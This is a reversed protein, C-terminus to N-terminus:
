YEGLNSNYLVSFIVNKGIAIASTSNIKVIGTTTITVFGVSECNAGTGFFCMARIDMNPYFKSNSIQGIKLDVNASLAASLTGRFEALCFDAKKTVVGHSLYAINESTINSIKGNPVNTINYIKNGSMSMRIDKAAVNSFTGIFSGDSKQLGDILMNNLSIPATMTINDGTKDFMFVHPTLDITDAEAEWITGNYFIRGGNVILDCWDIFRFTYHYTDSYCDTLIAPQTSYLFASNRFNSEIWAHVRTYLNVGGHNQIANPCRRMGIDSFHSDSGDCRIGVNCNEINVDSTFTEHSSVIWLGINKANVITFGNIVGRRSYHTKYCNDALGNGDLIIDRHSGHEKSTKSDIYILNEMASLAKIKSNKFNIDLKDFINIQSTVGYVKSGDSMLSYNNDICFNIANQLATTDNNIGDGVAGFLEPNIFGNTVKAIEALQTTVKNYDSRLRADPSAHSVGETDVKMQEVAPDITSAGTVQDLQTQTFDAKQIAENAVNVADEALSKATSADLGASIYKNYLEEFMSNLKNRSEDTLPNDIIYRTM